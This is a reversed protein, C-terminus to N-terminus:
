AWPEELPEGTYVQPPVLQLMSTQGDTEHLYEVSRVLFTFGDAIHLSPAVVNVLTNPAWLEGRPTYWGIVPFSISLAEALQKSRRWAANISAGGSSVEPAMFNITRSSPVREDVAQSSIEDGMGGQGYVTYRYFRKRGDFTAGLKQAPPSGEQLSAVIPGKTRAATLFLNGQEDNSVLLGRQSALRALLEAYSETLQAKIEEFPETVRTSQGPLTVNGIDTKVGIGLSAGFALALNWVSLNSWQYKWSGPPIHSDVLDATYSWGELKKLIGTESVENAMTYLRGTNVLTSGLYVQAKPYAYPALRADLARDKGPMWAIEASWGDAVTDLTRTVRGSIVPVELDALVLTFAERPKSRLSEQFARLRAQERLQAPSLGQLAFDSM